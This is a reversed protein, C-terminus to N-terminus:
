DRYDGRESGFIAFVPIAVIENSKVETAVQALALGAETAWARVLHLPCGLLHDDAVMRSRM